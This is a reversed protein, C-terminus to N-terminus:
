RRPQTSPDDPVEVLVDEVRLGVGAAPVGQDGVLRGHFGVGGRHEQGVLALGLDLAAVAFELAGQGHRGEEQM